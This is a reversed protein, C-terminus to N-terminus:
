AELGSGPIDSPQLLVITKASFPFPVSKPEGSGDEQGLLATAVGVLTDLTSVREHHAPHAKERCSSSTQQLPKGHQRGESLNVAGLAQLQQPFHIRMLNLCAKRRCLLQRRREQIYFLRLGRPKVRVLLHARKKVSKNMSSSAANKDDDSVVSADQQNPGETKPVQSASNSGQSFLTASSSSSCSAGSPPVSAPAVEENTKVTGTASTPHRHPMGHSM